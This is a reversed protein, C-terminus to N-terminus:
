PRVVVRTRAVWDHVAPTGPRIALLVMSALGGIAVLASWLLVAWPALPVGLLLLMAAAWLWFPLSMPHLAVRQMRAGRWGDERRAVVLGALRQGPTAGHEAVSMLLWAAWTLPVALLLAAALASDFDTADYAGWSTRVLLYALSVLVSALSGGLLVGLDSLAARVRAGRPALESPLGTDTGPLSLTGVQMMRAIM